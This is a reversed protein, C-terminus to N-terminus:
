GHQGREGALMLYLVAMRIAIGNSVQEGIVANPLAAVAPSIEVGRNMPGPHLILAGDPLLGARRENLGFRLVFERISPLRLGAGRENQLRLIMLADTKELATDLDDTISVPWDDIEAPLLTPPAVLTIEAGMKSFLWINSRAVRSHEIDGVITLRLGDISKRHRTVTYLDILAQTPHEHAGDGANVVPLGVWRSMNEPIGASSHRVILADAGMSALTEATDRMSEGKNVSSTSPSFNVVEASLRRAALEFSIRTRTSSEFFLMAVTTGRLAPVVPIPRELVEAFSAAEGIFQDIADRDLDATSILSHPITVGDGPGM